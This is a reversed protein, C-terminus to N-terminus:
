NGPCLECDEMASAELAEGSLVGTATTTVTDSFVALEPNSSNTTSPLYSGVYDLFGGPSLSVASLDSVPSGGSDTISVTQFVPNDNLTLNELVDQGANTIRGKVQVKVAVQGNVVVLGVGDPAFSDDCMKTVTLDSTASGTCTDASMDTVTQPGGSSAAAEVTATNTVSMASSQLTVNYVVPPDTPLLTTITEDLGTASDTVHVDHLTGFGTNEVSITWDYDFATGGGAITGPGDCTKTISISCIELTANEDTLIFDKLVANESTSSRTEVLSDTFCPVPAGSAAFLKSLNVGGEVFHLAEILGDARWSVNTLDNLENSVACIDNNGGVADCLGANLGTLDAPVLAGNQWQFIVFTPESGGVNYDIVILTDGNEHVGTFNPDAKAINNQFLWIGTTADGGENFRDYGFYFHLEGDVEYFAGYSNALDDKPPGGASNKFEWNPIDHIDKSGGKAFIDDDDGLADANVGSAGIFIAGTAMPGAPDNINAWDDHPGPAPLNQEHDGDLEFPGDPGDVAGAFVSGSGIFGICGLFAASVALRKFWSYM